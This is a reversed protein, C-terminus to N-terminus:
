ADHDHGDAARATGARRPSPRCSREDGETDAGVFARTRTAGAPAASACWRPQRGRRDSAFVRKAGRRSPVRRQHGAIREPGVKLVVVRGGGRADREGLSGEACVMGEGGPDGMVALCELLHHPTHPNGRASRLDDHRATRLSTPRRFGLPLMTWRVGSVARSSSSVEEDAYVALARQPRRQAERVVRTERVDVEVLEGIGGRSLGLFDLCLPLPSCPLGDPLPPRRAPIGAHRDHALEPAGTRGRPSQGPRSSPTCCSTTRSGFSVGTTAVSLLWPPSSHSSRAKCHTSRSVNASRSRRPSTVDPASSARSTAAAWGFALATTLGITALVIAGLAILLEIPVGLLALATLTFVGITASSAIRGIQIEAGLQTTLREVWGGLLRGAVIGAAVLVLAAVVRPVYLLLENLAPEIGGIGLTLVAAVVVLLGVAIQVTRGVLASIPPTGESRGLAEHIGHRSALRDVGAIRLVRGTTRGLLWALLLGFVLIALAGVFHPLWEGLEAEAQRWIESM